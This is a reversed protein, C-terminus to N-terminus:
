DHYLAYVRANETHFRLRMSRGALETGTRDGWRLSEALRSGAPLSNENKSYGRVVRGQEDLLEVSLAGKHEYNLRLGGAPMVFTKSTFRAPAESGASAIRDVPLSYVEMDKGPRAGHFGSEGGFPPFNYIQNSMMFLLRNHRVLPAHNFYIRLDSTAPTDRYPREWKVGDDSLWWETSLHPGHKSPYPDYPNRELVLAPSPAYNLMIGVWRDGYRFGNFWYHELDPPDDADPEILHSRDLWSDPRSQLVNDGPSWQLGDQSERVSLVRRLGIGLVEEYRLNDYYRRPQPLQQYTVALALYRKQADDWLLNTADHDYYAPEAVPTFTTGDTSFHARWRLPSLVREFALYRNESPNHVMTMLHRPTMESQLPTVSKFHIGDDTEARFLGGTERSSGWVHYRDDIERNYVTMALVTTPLGKTEAYYGLTNAQFVVPGAADMVDAARMFVQLTKRGGKEGSGAGPRLAVQLPESVQTVEGLTIQARVTAHPSGPAAAPLTAYAVQRDRSDSKLHLKTDGPEIRFSVEARDLNLSRGDADMGRVAFSTTDWPALEGVPWTMGVRALPKEPPPALTHLAYLRADRLHFRLTIKRGALFSTDVNNWRLVHGIDNVNIMLCREKNFPPIVVGEEDLIEVMAYAQQSLALDGRRLDVNLRLSQEPATFPGIDLIANSGAGVAAGRRHEPRSEDTAWAGRAESYSRVDGWVVKVATEDHLPLFLGQPASEGRLTLTSAVCVMLLPVAPRVGARLHMLLSHYFSM